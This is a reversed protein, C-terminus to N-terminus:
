SRLMEQLPQDVRGHEWVPQLLEPVSVEELRARKKAVGTLGDKGENHNEGDETSVNKEDETGSKRQMKDRIELGGIGREAGRKKGVEAMKSLNIFTRADDDSEGSAGEAGGRAKTSTAMMGSHPDSARLQMNINLGLSSSAVAQRSWIIKGMNGDNHCSWQHLKLQDVM